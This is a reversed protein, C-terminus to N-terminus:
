HMAVGEPLPGRAFHRHDEAKFRGAVVARRRQDGAVPANQRLGDDALRLRM